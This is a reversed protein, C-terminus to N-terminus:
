VPSLVWIGLLPPLAYIDNWFRSPILRRCRARAAGVLLSRPLRSTRGASPMKLHGGRILVNGRLICLYATPRDFLCYQVVQVMCARAVYQDGRTMAAVAGAACAHISECRCGGCAGDPAGSM